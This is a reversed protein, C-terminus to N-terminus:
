ENGNTDIGECDIAYSELGDVAERVENTGVSELDNTESFEEFGDKVVAIDEEVESADTAEEMEDLSDTIEGIQADLEAYAAEPTDAEIELEGGALSFFTRAADCWEDSPGGACAVSGLAFAAAAVAVSVKKLFM